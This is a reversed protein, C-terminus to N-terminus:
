EQRLTQLYQNAITQIDFEAARGRLKDPNPPEHLTNLIAEALRHYDGVPVLPGYTGKDLIEKPGSPCDTSVVPCGCALAELIANSLGEWASSLVFVRSRALYAYPNEVFGPMWVDHEIGLDKAQHELNKRLRGEGLIVLRAPRTSRVKQFAQLLTSFDKQPVLRGVGLIIPSEKETFWPHAPQINAKERILELPLPNYITTMKQPSIKTVTSLDHAVGHSITIIADAWPYIRRIASSIFRWRWKKKTKIIPTLTTRESIVVRIGTKSLRHAILAAINSPTKAALLVQPRQNRLYEILSDLYRITHPPHSTLLIPLLIDFLSGPDAWLSLFKGKWVSNPKLAIINIGPPVQELYEGTKQCLILDVTYGLEVFRRALMLMVRGVGGAALSPLFIALPKPNSM